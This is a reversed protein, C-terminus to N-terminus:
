KAKLVTEIAALAEHSAKYVNRIGTSRSPAQTRLVGEEERVDRIIKRVARIKKQEPTLAM